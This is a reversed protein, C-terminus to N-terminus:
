SMVQSYTLSNHRQTHTTHNYRPAPKRLEYQVNEGIIDIPVRPIEVTAVTRRSPKDLARKLDSSKRMVKKSIPARHLWPGVHECKDYPFLEIVDTDRITFGFQALADSLTQGEEFHM